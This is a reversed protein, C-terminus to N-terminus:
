QYIYNRFYSIWASNSSWKDYRNLKQVHQSSSTIQINGGMAKWVSVWTTSETPVRIWKGDVKIKEELYRCSTQGKHSSYGVSRNQDVVTEINGTAAVIAEIMQRPSHKGTLPEDFWEIGQHRLNWLISMFPPLSHLNYHLACEGRRSDYKWLGTKTSNRKM